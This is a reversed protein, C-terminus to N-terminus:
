VGTTITVSIEDGVRFDENPNFIVQNGNAHIAGTYTNGFNGTVILTSNDITAMDMAESFTIVINADTSIDNSHKLPSVSTITPQALGSVVMVMALIATAFLQKM